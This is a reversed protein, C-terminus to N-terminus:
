ELPSAFTILKFLEFAALFLVPEYEPVAQLLLFSPPPLEKSCIADGQGHQGACSQARREPFAHRPERYTGMVAIPSGVRAQLEALHM